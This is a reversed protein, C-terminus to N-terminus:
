KVLIKVSGGKGDVLYRAIYLGPAYGNLSITKSSTEKVLVRGNITYITVASRAGDVLLTKEVVRVPKKELEAKSSTVTKSVIISGTGEMFAPHTTASYTGEAMDTGNLTFNTVKLATNLIVKGSGSVTLDLNEGAAKEHAFIVVNNAGVAIKGNGFSNASEGVLKTVSEAVGNARTLDWTGTFASNDGKLLMNATTAPTGRTNYITMKGAGKTMGLLHFQHGGVATSSSNIQVLMDGTVTVPANLSFLANSTAYSIRSGTLFEIEGTASHAGRMRLNGASQLILKAPFVTGTTEIERNVLVTEGAEPMLQPSFHAPVDWNGNSGGVFNFTSPRGVIIKGTGSILSSNTAATYEGMPQMVNDIFFESLTVDANLVLASGAVVRLASRPQFASSNGITLTAGNQVSIAGKGLANAANAELTGAKIVWNGSFNSNDGTLVVKGTGEKSFEHVGTLQASLTLTNSGTFKNVEKTSIKGGLTVDANNTLTANGIALYTVTSNATVNFTAGNQLTLDALFTGGTAQIEHTGSVTAAEAVAPVGNPNWNAAEMWGKTAAAGTWVFSQVAPAQATPDWNDAGGMVKQITYNTAEQATIARLGIWNARGAMSAGPGTNNYEYLKLDPSTDAYDMSWKDGWGEPHVMDSFESNMWVVHPYEHWPRGLRFKVGDDGARPSNTAYTLRSNNFVYGYTQTRPHSPATIWGGGWSRIECREFWAIGSGYIYDTRGMILCGEFYSRKPQWLYITDQYGLFNCNIFVNKDSTVTIAQAQGVPGATNQVTLNEARFGDGAITLTASTRINEGIWKAADATPCKGTACDYIHYSIITQERSEGLLTLNKKDGPVILKETNYLGRKIYIVTRRESNSPVANIADQIKTFNGSGDLAVVIDATPNAVAGLSLLLFLLLPFGKFLQTFNQM